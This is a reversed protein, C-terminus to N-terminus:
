DASNREYRPYIKENRDTMRDENSQAMGSEAASRSDPERARNRRGEPNLRSRYM